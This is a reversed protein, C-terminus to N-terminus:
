SWVESITGDPMRCYFTYVFVRGGFQRYSQVTGGANTCAIVHPNTARGGSPPQTSVNWVWVCTWVFAVILLISFAGQGIIALLDRRDLRDLRDLRDPSSRRM